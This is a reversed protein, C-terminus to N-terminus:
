SPYGLREAWQALAPLVPALPEAYHRWHGIGARELGRKIEELQAEPSSMQDLLSEIRSLSTVGRRLSESASGIAELDAGIRGITDAGQKFSNLAHPLREGRVCLQLAENWGLHRLMMEGTWFTGISIPAKIAQHRSRFRLMSLAARASYTVERKRRSSRARLLPLGAGRCIVQSGRLASALIALCPM